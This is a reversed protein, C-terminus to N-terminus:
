KKIFSLYLENEIINLRIRLCKFFSSIIFNNDICSEKTYTERGANYSFGYNAYINNFWKGSKPFIKRQPLSFSIRHGSLWKYVNIQEM